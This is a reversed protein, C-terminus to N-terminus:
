KEPETNLETPPVISEEDGEQKNVYIIFTTKVEEDNVVRKISAPTSTNVSAPVIRTKGDETQIIGSTASKQAFLNTSLSVLLFLVVYVIFFKHKKKM